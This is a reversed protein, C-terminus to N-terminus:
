AGKVRAIGRPERQVDGKRGAGALPSICMWWAIAPRVKGVEAIGTMDKWSLSEWGSKAACLLIKGNKTISFIWQCCARPLTLM